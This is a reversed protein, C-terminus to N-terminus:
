RKQDVEQDVKQDDKKVVKQGADKNAKHKTQLCPSCPTQQLEPFDCPNISYGDFDINFALERFVPRNTPFRGGHFPLNSVEDKNPNTAISSTLRSKFHVNGGSRSPLDSVQDKKTNKKTSNPIEAKFQDSKSAKATNKLFWKTKLKPKREVDDRSTMSKVNLKQEIIFDAMKELEDSDERQGIRLM